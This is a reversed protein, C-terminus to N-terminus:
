MHCGMGTDWKGDFSGSQRALDLLNRFTEMSPVFVFMGTNFCDPWGIDPAASLEERDFLEDVNQLVLTDADLFVCKSYHTLRWVHIKSFTVGLEPRTLLALHETDRSDLEEIVVLEDWLTSLRNRTSLPVLHLVLNCEAVM